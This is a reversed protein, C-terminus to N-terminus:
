SEKTHKESLAAFLAKTLATIIFGVQAQLRRMNAGALTLSGQITPFPGDGVWHELRPQIAFKLTGEGQDKTVLINFHLTQDQDKDKDQVEVCKAGSEFAAQAVYEALMSRQVVDCKGHAKMDLSLVEIAIKEEAYVTLQTILENLEEWPMEEGHRSLKTEVGNAHVYVVQLWYTPNMMRSNVTQRSSIDLRDKGVQLSRTAGGTIDVRTTSDATLESRDKIFNKKPDKAESPVAFLQHVGRLTAAFLDEEEKAGVMAGITPMNVMTLKDLAEIMPTTIVVKEEDSSGQALLEVRAWRAVTELLTRCERLLDAVQEPSLKVHKGELDSDGGVEQKIETETQENEAELFSDMASGFEMISDTLPMTDWTVSKVEGSVVSLVLTIDGRPHITDGNSYGTIDEILRLVKACYVEDTQGSEPPQIMALIELCLFAAKLQIDDAGEAAGVESPDLPMVFHIQLMEGDLTVDVRWTISIDMPTIGSSPLKVPQDPSEYIDAIRQMLGSTPLREVKRKRKVKKNELPPSPQPVGMKVEEGPPSRRGQVPKDAQPNDGSPFIYQLWGAHKWSAVDAGDPAALPRIPYIHNLLTGLYQGMNEPRNPMPMGQERALTFSACIAWPTHKSSAEDLDREKKAEGKTEGEKEEKKERAQSKKRAFHACAFLETQIMDNVLTLFSHVPPLTFWLFGTTVLGPMASLLWEIAGFVYGCWWGGPLIATVLSNLLWMIWRMLLAVGDVFITSLLGPFLAMIGFMIICLIVPRGYTHRWMAAIGRKLADLAWGGLYRGAAALFGWFGEGAKRLFSSPMKAYMWKLGNFIGSVIAVCFTVPFKFASVVARTMYRWLRKGNPAAKGEAVVVVPAALGTKPQNLARLRAVITALWSTRPQILKVPLSRPDAQKKKRPRSIKGRKASLPIFVFKENLDALYAFLSIM